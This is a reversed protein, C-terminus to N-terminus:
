ITLGLDMNKTVVLKGGVYTIFPTGANNIADEVDTISGLQLNGTINTDKTVNIKDGVLDYTIYPITANSLDIIKQEVDPITNLKFNGVVEFNNAIKTLFNIEDYAVDTLIVFLDNLITDVDGISPLELTGTIKVSDAITLISAARSINQLKEFQDSANYNQSGVILTSSVKLTDGIITMSGGSDYSIKTTKQKNDIITTEVDPITNLKFNGAVEFNNAIKTTNNDYTIDFLLGDYYDLTANVDSHGPLQLYGTMIISDDITLISAARSINQLKEFQDSANYNQSGVILTSSVKLTDGIITISNEADYSIKTTKKRNDIITDGTNPLNPLKLVGNVSLDNLITTTNNNYTIDTLKASNADIENLKTGVSVGALSLSPMAVAGYFIAGSKKAYLKNAEALSLAIDETDFVSPNFIQLNASPAPYSSM